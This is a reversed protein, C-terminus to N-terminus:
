SGAQFLTLQMGDRSVVRLNTDGWPTKTVPAVPEAGAESLERGASVVDEVEVAFRVRQGTRRGVEVVDVFHAQDVDLLVLTAAPLSLIVGRGDERAWSDLVELGFADRYLALAADLDPVTVSIRFERVHPM